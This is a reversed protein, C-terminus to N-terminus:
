IIVYLVPSMRVPPFRHWSLRAKSSYEVSEDEKTKYFELFRHYDKYDPVTYLGGGRKLVRLAETFASEWSEAYDFFGICNLILDISENPIMSLDEAPTIIYRDRFSSSRFEPYYVVDVGFAAINYNKNLEEVAKGGGCMIDLAIIQSDQKREIRKLTRRINIGFLHEYEQFSRSFKATNIAPSASEQSKLAEHKM